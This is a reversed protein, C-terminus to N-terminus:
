SVPDSIGRSRRLEEVREFAKVLSERMLETTVALTRVEELDFWRGDSHEAPNTTVEGEEVDVLFNYKICWNGRSTGFEVTGLFEVITAAVLGSEELAERAVADLLTTDEPDAGGGPVEWLNPYSDTAARRLLLVKPPSTGPPTFIFAGVAVQPTEPTVFQSPPLAYSILSTTYTYVPPQSTYVLSEAADTGTDHSIIAPM